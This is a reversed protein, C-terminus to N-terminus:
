YFFMKQFLLCFSMLKDALLVDIQAILVQCFTFAPKALAHPCRNSNGSEAELKGWANLLVAKEKSDVQLEVGEKLLHRSASVRKNSWKLRALSKVM